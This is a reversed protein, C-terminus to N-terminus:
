NGFWGPPDGLVSASVDGDSEVHITIPTKGVADPPVDGVAVIAGQNAWIMWSGPPVDFTVNVASMPPVADPVARGVAPRPQRAAGDAVSLVAPQASQNDVTIILSRGGPVPTPGFISM